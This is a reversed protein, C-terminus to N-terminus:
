PQRAVYDVFVPLHDSYAARFQEETDGYHELRIVFASRKPIRGMAAATAHVHDIRSRGNVHTIEGNEKPLNVLLGDKEMEVNPSKEPTGNCDGMIVIRDTEEPDDLMERVRDNLWAGEAARLVRDKYHCHIGIVRFPKADGGRPRFVGTVPTAFGHPYPTSPSHALESMIATCLAEVRSEDYLLANEMGECHTTKWTDGLRSRVEELTEGKYIEQLVIVPSDFSRIRESLSTLQDPTRSPDRTGLFEINWCVLRIQGEPPPYPFEGQARSLDPSLLACSFILVALIRFLANAKM